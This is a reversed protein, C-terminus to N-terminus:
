LKCCANDTRKLLADEQLGKHIIVEKVSHELEAADFRGQIQGSIKFRHRQKQFIQDSLTTYASICENIDMELRGLMTAMLSRINTLSM